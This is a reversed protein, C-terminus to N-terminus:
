ACEGSKLHIIYHPFLLQREEEDRQSEDHEHGNGGESIGDCCSAKGYTVSVCYCCDGVLSPSPDGICIALKPDLLTIKLVNKPVM